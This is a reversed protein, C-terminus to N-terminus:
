RKTGEAWCMSFWLSADPRRAWAEYNRVAADFASEEILDANVMAQRATKVVGLMNAALVEFSEMGACGGFFIWTNRAPRAGAAHLLSVLRRGIFPDNGNRDYTRMYARWLETVGSPEPWLRLVEHDDDALVVRGGSRVARVMNRVVRLPDPVHELVFRAHAVDYTGWESQPLDLQLVDGRRFDVLDPEGEDRALRKSGELQKEDREIGVVHGRPVARAMARTFQGLGSGFDIIKEDSRLSLERLEATNLLVDNMLSLRRQEEPSTGHIYTM